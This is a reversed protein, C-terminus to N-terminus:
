SPFNILTRGQACATLGAAFSYRSENCKDIRSLSLIAYVAFLRTESLIEAEGAAEKLAAGPRGTATPSPTTCQLM